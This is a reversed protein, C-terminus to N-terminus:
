FPIDDEDPPVDADTVAPEDHGQPNVAAIWERSKKIKEKIWDPVGEPINEVDEDMDYFLQYTPSKPAMGKPLKAVASVNAYTKKNKTTHIVNVLCNASLINKINFGELEAPTFDRGRWSVLDTYMNAKEYLSATYEKSILRFGKSEGSEDLIPFDVLEWTIMVKPQEKGKGNYEVYQTGLDIVAVCVGHHNGAEILEVSNGQRAVLSM